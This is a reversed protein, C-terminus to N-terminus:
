VKFNLRYKCAYIQRQKPLRGEAGAGGDGKAVSASMETSEDGRFWRRQGGGHGCSNIGAAGSRESGCRHM